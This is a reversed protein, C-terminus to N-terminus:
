GNKNKNRNKSENVSYNSNLLKKTILENEEKLKVNKEKLINNEDNVEKMVIDFQNAKNQLDSVQKNLEKSRTGLKFIIDVMKNVTNSMNESILALIKSSESDSQSLYEELYKTNFYNFIKIQAVLVSTAYMFNPEKNKVCSNIIDIQNKFLNEFSTLIESTPDKEKKVSTIKEIVSSYLKIFLPKEEELSINLTDEDFLDLILNNSNYNESENSEFSSKLKNNKNQKQGESLM